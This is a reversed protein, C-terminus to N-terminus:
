MVHYFDLDGLSLPNWESVVCPVGKSDGDMIRVGDVWETPEYVRYACKKEFFDVYFAALDTTSLSHEKEWAQTKEQWKKDEMKRFLKPRAACCFEAIYEPHWKLISSAIKVAEIQHHTIKSPLDISLSPYDQLNKLVQSLHFPHDALLTGLNKQLDSM